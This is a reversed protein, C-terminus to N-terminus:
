YPFFMREQREQGISSFINVLEYGVVLKHGREGDEFGAVQMERIIGRYDYRGRGRKQRGREGRPVRTIVNSRSPHDLIIWKSVIL